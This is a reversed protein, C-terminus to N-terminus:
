KQQGRYIAVARKALVKLLSNTSGIIVPSEVIRAEISKMGFFADVPTGDETKVPEEIVRGHVTKMQNAFVGKDGVGSSVTSTIYILIAMCDVALPNNQIRFGGDVKGTFVPSHSAQARKKLEKDGQDALARLSESMEEKDGHYFIEVREVTGKVKARPSNASIAKLTKLSTEDFLKNNATVADEIICLPTDATVDQGAHALESVSESFKVLITKVKTIKTSLLSSIKKSIASSDEHTDTSELLATTVNLANKLVIQKKNFFDPEFFGDHYCVPDGAKFRDGQKLPTVIHHAITLGAANGFQRGIKYGQVSGDAYEVIMGEDEVSQVKGAQKAVVAFLESTRQAVVTDYGTRLTNQHYGECAIAHEAQIAIFNVRKPTEEVRSTLGSGHV